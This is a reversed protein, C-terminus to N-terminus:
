ASSKHLIPQRHISVELAERDSDEDSSCSLDSENNRLVEIIDDNQSDADSTIDDDQMMQFLSKEMQTMSLLEDDFVSTTLNTTM